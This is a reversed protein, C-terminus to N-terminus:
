PPAPCLVLSCDRIAIPPYMNVHKSKRKLHRKVIVGAPASAPIWVSPDNYELIIGAAGWAGCEVDVFM